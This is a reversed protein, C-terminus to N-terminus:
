KRWRIGCFFIRDPVYAFLKAKFATDAVFSTCNCPFIQRNETIVRRSMYLRLANQLSQGQVIYSSLHIIHTPQIVPAEQYGCIGCLRFRHLFATVGLESYEDITSLLLM